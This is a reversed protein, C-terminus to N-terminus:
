GQGRSGTTPTEGLAVSGSPGDARVRTGTAIVTAVVREGFRSTSVHLDRAGVRDAAERVEGALAVRWSGSRTLVEIDRWRVPGSFDAGVAKYAAEKVAFRTAAAVAPRAHRRCESAELDTYWHAWLRESGRDVLRQFRATDAVDIGVGM